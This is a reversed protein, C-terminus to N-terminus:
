SKSLTLTTKFLDGDIEIKLEGDQLAMLSKAISLGLGSGGDTRSSDGRVFRETLEEPDINLAAASTNKITLSAKDGLDAIDFYIRTGALSYKCANSLLNNVVRWLLHGDARVIVRNEAPLQPTLGANEFRTSYEAASQVALEYLDADEFQVQVNGTAAKSADIIDETLKKMREAQKELVALYEACNIGDPIEKKLLDIYNIISTLPTKIDHSVNTILETKMRESKVRESVQKAMGDNLRNLDRGYKRLSFALANVDAKEDLSGDAIKKITRGIFACSAAHWCMIGVFLLILLIFLLEYLALWGSRYTNSAMWILWIGALTFSGCFLIVKGVSAGLGNHNIICKKIFNALRYIITNKYWGKLKMRVSTTYIFSLALFALVSLQVVYRTMSGFWVDFILKLTLILVFYIDLPIKDFPTLFIGDSGRRRGSSILLFVLMALTLAAGAIVTAIAAYRIPFMVSFWYESNNYDYYYGIATIGGDTVTILQDQYQEFNYFTSILLADGNYLEFKVNSGSYDYLLGDTKGNALYLKIIQHLADEVIVTKPPLYAVLMLGNAEDANTYKRAAAFEDEDTVNSFVIKEGDFLKFRVGSAPAYNREGVDGTEAYCTLADHMVDYIPYRYNGTDEYCTINSAYLGQGECSTIVAWSLVTVVAFALMLVAAALKAGPRHTLRKDAKAAEREPTPPNEPIYLSM